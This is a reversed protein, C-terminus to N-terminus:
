PVFVDGSGQVIPHGCSVGSTIRLVPSGEAFVTQSASTTTAADHPPHPTGWPAHPSIVSTHLGVKIGNAFVTDAGRKIAGGPANTDGVRSIGPM